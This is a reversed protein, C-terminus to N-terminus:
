KDQDERVQTKHIKSLKVVCELLDNTKFCIITIQLILIILISVWFALLRKKVKSVVPEWFIHKRPNGGLPLGLYKIPWVGIECGSILAFNQLLDEDINIGLLTSRTLNVRLGLVAGFVELLRLFNIFVNHNPEMFLLTDDAFQLHTVEVKNRGVFFGHIADSDKAKDILRGLVDAVLTFLFPSLPDGQRLGRSGKFKGRPRGNIFISYSVTSLCGLIWKRWLSGFGKMRLVFDLFDWEVHDYAKEFDLKFVIGSRGLKRYEEVTENAILVVDLIQRGAVFAGQTEAITDSLVGKLRSSLIKSIIKYLSTVLNIPRFDKVKTSNVKKPILCIYTENTVGHIIGDRAFEQFVKLINEKWGKCIRPISQIHKREIEGM